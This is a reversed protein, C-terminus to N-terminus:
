RERVRTFLCGATKQRVRQMFPAKKAFIPFNAVFAVYCACIVYLCAYSILLPYMHQRPEPPRSLNIQLANM